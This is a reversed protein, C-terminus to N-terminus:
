KAPPVKLSFQVAVGIRYSVKGAQMGVAEPEAKPDSGTGNMMRMQRMMMYEDRAYPNYDDFSGTQPSSLHRVEGVEAGAARALREAEVKAQSFADSMAKTRDSDSIKSVYMFLPTGRRPEGNGRPGDPGGAAEEVAEEEQPSIKGAVKLGGLDAAKVKEELDHAALLLEEPTRTAPLPIQFSSQTSVVVPATSGPKAKQLARAREMMYRDVRGQRESMENVSAPDGFQISDKSAGLKEFATRVEDRRIKLKELAEKLTRGQALVELHVRLNDPQRKIEAGGTVTITPVASTTSPEDRAFAPAALLLSGIGFLFVRRPM